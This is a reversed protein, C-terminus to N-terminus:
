PSFAKFAFASVRAFVWSPSAEIEKEGFRFPLKLVVTATFASPTDDSSSDNLHAIFGFAKVYRVFDHHSPELLVADKLKSFEWGYPVAIRSVPNVEDAVAKTLEDSFSQISPRYAEYQTWGGATYGFM